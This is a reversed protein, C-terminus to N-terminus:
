YHFRVTHEPSDNNAKPSSKEEADQWISLKHLPQLTPASVSKSLDKPLTIKAFCANVIRFQEENLYVQCYELRDTAALELLKFLPTRSKWPKDAPALRLVREPRGLMWHLISIGYLFNVGQPSFGLKEQLTKFEIKSLKQKSL